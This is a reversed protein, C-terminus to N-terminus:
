SHFNVEEAGLFVEEFPTKRTSSDSFSISFNVAIALAGLHMKLAVGCGTVMIVSSPFTIDVISGQPMRGLSTGISVVVVCLMSVIITAGMSTFPRSKSIKCRGIVILSLLM